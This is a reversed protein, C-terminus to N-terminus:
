DEGSPTVTKTAVVGAFLLSAGVLYVVSADGYVLESFGYNLLSATALMLLLIRLFMM